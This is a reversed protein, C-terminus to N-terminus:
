KEQYKMLVVKVDDLSDMFAEVCKPDFQTGSGEQIISLAKELPFAPKYVRASSLADFVDAVAMVRASLPIVEGHLGEPYGNGDWREHHYAAMNRAEKLYNDGKVTSIAKEIIEKGITTHTKMIEFEEDTLKGPKNLITDSINIKGIDHLPASIEVDAMYKPSLKEEYYGKKKLGELIIKVYAATKQIHAGTDSDRNEVMDAMTIIMGNQMKATSDTYHRIDRIQESMGAAMNCISNYMKEIEDGTHVDLLRLRRVKEDLKKQDVGAETFGDLCAAISNIPYVIYYGTIWMATFLILLLFGILILFVRILFEQMYDALYQLSVMAGVYCICNGNDDYVPYFVDMRWGLMDKSMIPEIEEGNILKDFYPQISDNPETFKGTNFPENEETGLDFITILGEKQVRVVYLNEVYPSNSRILKMMERTENYGSVQEGRAIYEDIKNKDLIKAVFVAANKANNMRDNRTNHFYLNIGISGLIIVLTLASGVIIFTIKKKIPHKVKKSDDDMLRIDDKTLPRQKWGSNEISYRLAEPIRNIVFIAILTTITKDVLNFSFNVIVFILFKSLRNEGEFTNIINYVMQSQPDGFLGWQILAGLVSSILSIVIIFNAIRGPKKLDYKKVYWSTFLAILVSIVSFYLSDSIFIINIANTFIAVMIGPFFGGLAALAITGITDFYLPINFKTVLFCLLANIAIGFMVAIARHLSNRDPGHPHTSM